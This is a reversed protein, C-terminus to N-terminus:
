ARGFALHLGLLTRADFYAGAGIVRQSYLVVTEGPDLRSSLLLSAADTTPTVWASGDDSVNLGVTQRDVWVRVHHLSWPSVNELTFQTTTTLGASADAASVDAGSVVNGIKDSIPIDRQSVFDPVYDVWVRLRIWKDRVVGDILVIEGDATAQVAPGFSASGPARWAFRSGDNESRVRGLGTGNRGGIAIIQVGPIAGYWDFSVVDAGTVTVALADAGYRTISRIPFGTWIRRLPGRAARGAPRRFVRISKDLTTTAM